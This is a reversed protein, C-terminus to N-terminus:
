RAVITAALVIRHGQDVATGATMEFLNRELNKEQCDDRSLLSDLSSQQHRQIPGTM